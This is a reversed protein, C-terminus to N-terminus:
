KRAGMLPCDRHGLNRPTAAIRSGLQPPLVSSRLPNESPEPPARSAATASAETTIDYASHAAASPPVGVIASHQASPWSHKGAAVAPCCRQRRSARSHASAHAGGVLHSSTDTGRWRSTHEGLRNTSSTRTGAHTRYFVPRLSPAGAAARPGFVPLPVRSVNRSARRREGGRAELMRLHGSEAQPHTRRRHCPRPNSHRHM